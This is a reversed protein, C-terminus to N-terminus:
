TCTSRKATNTTKKAEYTEWGIDYIYVVENQILYMTSRKATITTKKAKYTEWSFRPVITKTKTWAQM